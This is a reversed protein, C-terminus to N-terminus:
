GAKVPTTPNSLEARAMSLFFCMVASSDGTTFTNAGALILRM